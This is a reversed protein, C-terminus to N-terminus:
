YLLIEKISLPYKDDRTTLYDENFTHSIADIYVTDRSIINAELAEIETLSDPTEGESRIVAISDTNLFSMLNDFDDSFGLYKNKYSIQVARIDKLKQINEGIRVKALNQFKVESNISNFVFYALIINIPILIVAIQKAKM